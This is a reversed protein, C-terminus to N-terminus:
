GKEGEKLTASRLKTAFSNWIDELFNRGQIKISVMNKGEVPLLLPSPRRMFQKVTAPVQIDFNVNFLLNNKLRQEYLKLRLGFELQNFSFDSKNRLVINEQRYAELFDDREEKSFPRCELSGKLSTAMPVYSVIDIDRLLTERRSGHSVELIFSGEVYEINSYSSEPDLYALVNLFENKKNHVILKNQESLHMKTSFILGEQSSIVGMVEGRQKLHNLSFYGQVDEGLLSALSVDRWDITGKFDPMEGSGFIGSILVTGGKPNELELREVVVGKQSSLQIKAGLIKWNKFYGYSFHGQQLELSWGTKQNFLLKAKAETIHGQFEPDYGWVLNFCDVNVEKLSVHDFLSAYSQQADSLTNEGTKIQISAKEVSWPELNKTDSSFTHYFPMKRCVGKLELKEFFTLANGQGLLKSITLARFSVRTGLVTFQSGTPLGALSEEVQEKVMGERLAYYYVGFGCLSFLVALFVLRLALFSAVKVMDEKQRKFLFVYKLVSLFGQAYVWRDVREEYNTRWEEFAKNM